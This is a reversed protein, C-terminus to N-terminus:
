DCTYCYDTRVGDVTFPVIEDRTLSDGEDACFAALDDLTMEEFTACGYREVIWPCVPIETPEVPSAADYPFTRAPCAQESSCAALLLATLITRM